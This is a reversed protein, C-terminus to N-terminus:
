EHLKQEKLWTLCALPRDTEIADGGLEIVQSWGDPDDQAMSNVWVVANVDHCMKTQELSIDRLSSGFVEPSIDSVIQRMAAADAPPRNLMLRAYPTLRRIETLHDLRAYVTTWAFASNRHLLEVIDSPSAAKVELYAGIEGGLTRMTEDATPVGSGDSLTLKGMDRSDIEVVAGSGNTTADVTDNHITYLKGDRTTRIDFEAWDVGIRIGREFAAISNEPLVPEEAFAGKHAIVQITKANM